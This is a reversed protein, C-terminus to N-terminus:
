DISTWLISASMLEVLELDDTSGRDFVLIHEVGVDVLHRICAEILEVEDLVAVVAALRMVANHSRAVKILRALM